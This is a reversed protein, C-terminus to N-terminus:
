GPLWLNFNIVLLAFVVEGLTLSSAAGVAGTLDPPLLHGSNIRVFLSGCALLVLSCAAVSFVTLLYPYM